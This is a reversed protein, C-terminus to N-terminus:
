IVLAGKETKFLTFDDVEHQLNWLEKYKSDSQMLVEHTGTESIKGKNLLLIQEASMISRLRHAIIIVTKDKTLNAIAQQILNENEADSYALAEDLIIIPADKLIARAISLRQTEGGSLRIGGAGLKTDYANENEMIFDHCCALKAANEVQEKTYSRSMTINEYVSGSFLYTDQLVYAINDMLVSYQMDKVNVGGITIEGETADYFRSILQGITSKGGGSEGVLATMKGQKATFSINKIAFTKNEDQEQYSFSVNKFCVDYNTFKVAKDCTEIPTQEFVEEIADLGVNLMVMQTGYNLCTMLPDYIAPAIILVMLVDLLTSQTPNASILLVGVPLIFTLMSLIVSKYMGMPLAASKYGKLEKIKYEEIADRLSKTMKGSIGFLKVEAMGKVYESFAGTMKQNAESVQAMIEQTKKGFVSIQLAMAVMITVLLTVGLWPSLMFVGIFLVLTTIASGFLDPLMHGIFSEVREACEDITKQIGGTTQKTFYLMPLKGLHEMVRMKFAFLLKFAVYHCTFGGLFSFVMNGLIGLGAVIIWVMIIQTNAVIEEPMLFEKAICFVSLFPVIGCLYGVVSSLVGLNLINSKFDAIKFVRQMVPPKKSKEQNKLVIGGKVLTLCM